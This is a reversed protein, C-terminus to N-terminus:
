VSHFKRSIPIFTCCGLQIVVLGLRRRLFDSIHKRRTVGLPVYPWQDSTEMWSQGTSFGEDEELLQVQFRSDVNKESPRNQQLTIQDGVVRVKSHLYQLNTPHSLPLVDTESRRVKVPRCRVQLQHTVM